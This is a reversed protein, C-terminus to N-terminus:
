WLQTQDVSWFFFPKTGNLKSSCCHIMVKTKNLHAYKKDNSKRKWDKDMYISSLIFTAVMPPTGYSITLQSLLLADLIILCM